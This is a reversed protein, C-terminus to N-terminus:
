MGRKRIYKRDDGSLQAMPLQIRKGDRKELTVTGMAQKIFKAEVSFKGTSDNWMRFEQDDHASREDRPVTPKAPAPRVVPDPQADLTEPQTEVANV